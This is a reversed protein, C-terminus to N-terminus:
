RKPLLLTKVILGAYTNVTLRVSDAPMKNTPLSAYAQTSYYEPVNGQDHHLRLCLTRTKDPNVLLTDAVFALHQVATTDESVGTKLLFSLNLYKGSKSLWISEFNVPDTRVEDEFENLPVIDPCPVQAISVVEAETKVKNYYLICRYTTDAKTIWKASYPEKLTMQDLDDTVASIAQLDNNISIECFDGRLLSYEGEGKEYSDQECSVLVVMLTIMSFLLRRM